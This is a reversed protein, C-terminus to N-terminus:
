RGVMAYYAALAAEAGSGCATAIRQFRASRCDGAPLIRPHQKTPPVYGSEDTALDGGPVAPRVGLNALVRGTTPFTRQQGDVGTVDLGVGTQGHVSVHDVPLLTLRPDDAVETAKYQEDLPYLVLLRMDLDPNARLLTGLPRDVGLVITEGGALSSPDTEWLVPLQHGGRGTLWATEQMTLPRVGTAVVAYAARVTGGSTTVTVGDDTADVRLAAAEVVRCYEAAAVDAAAHAALEPGTGHGIVNQMHAVAHLKGCLAGPELLVSRMRLSSAMVAASCGAPGGGVIVLDADIPEASM